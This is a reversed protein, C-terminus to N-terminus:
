YWSNLSVLWMFSHLSLPNSAPNEKIITDRIQIPLIPQSFIDTIRIQQVLILGVRGLISHMLNSHVNLIKIHYRGTLSWVYQPKEGTHTRMHWKLLSLKNFAKEHHVSSTSFLKRLSTCSIDGHLPCSLEHVEQLSHTQGQQSNPCHPGGTRTENWSQTYDWGLRM